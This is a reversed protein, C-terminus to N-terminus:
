GGPKPPNTGRPQTLEEETQARNADARDARRCRRTPIHSGTPTENECILKADTTAPTPDGAKEGL